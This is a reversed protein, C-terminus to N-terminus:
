RKSEARLRDVHNVPGMLLRPSQKSDGRNNCTLSFEVKNVCAFFVLQYCGRSTVELFAAHEKQRFTVLLNYTVV